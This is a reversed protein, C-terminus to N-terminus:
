GRVSRLSYNTRVEEILDKINKEFADLDETTEAVRVITEGFHLYVGEGVVDGDDDYRNVSFLVKM